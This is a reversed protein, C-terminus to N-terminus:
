YVLVSSRPVWGSRQGSATVFVWTDTQNKVLVGEGDVFHTSSTGAKDPITFAATDRIVAIKGGRLLPVLIPEGASSYLMVLCSCALFLVSGKIRKKVGLFVGIGCCLIALGYLLGRPIWWEDPSSHIQLQKEAERRIERYLPGAYSDRENKRLLVLSEAHNGAEWIQRSEQLVTQVSGSILPWLIEWPLGPELVPFDPFARVKGNGEAGGAQLSGERGANGTTGGSLAGGKGTGSAGLPTGAAQRSSVEAVVLRQAESLIVRGGWELKAQPLSLEGSKLPICRIRYLLGREREENTVPLSEVLADEVLDVVLDTVAGGPSAGPDSSELHLELIMPFGVRPVEPLGTWFLRPSFVPGPGNPGQISLTQPGTLGRKGPVQVEFPRLTVTGTGTPIFTYEVVTWPTAEISRVGTRVRDLSLVSPLPPLTVAVRDAEPYEVLLTLKWPSGVTLVNSETQVLVQLAEQSGPVSWLYGAGRLVLIWPLMDVLLRHLGRRYKEMASKEM